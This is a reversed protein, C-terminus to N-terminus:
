GNIEQTVIKIHSLILMTKAFASSKPPYYPIEILIKLKVEKLKYQKM